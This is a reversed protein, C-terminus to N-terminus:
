LGGRFPVGAQAIWEDGQIFLSPGFRVAESEDKLVKPGRVRKETGSGPGYNGFEAYYYKEEEGAGGGGSATVKWGEAAVTEGLYSEIVVVKSRKRWPRGLVIEGGGIGKVTCNQLVFGTTEYREARGQATVAGGGSVVIESDQIVAAADGIILDGSGSIRCGSYFQRHALAYLASKGGKIACNYFASKDAQVRVAVATVAAAAPSSNGASKKARNEISMSRCVFGDGLVAVTATEYTAIGLETSKSGYVVTRYAGDGYITVNVQNKGVTFTEYYEGAKVYVVFRGFENVKYASLAASITRFGGSGDAAVVADPRAPELSASYSSRIPPSTENRNNFTSTVIALSNSTMKIPKGLRTKVDRIRRLGDRCSIQYAVAASLRDM